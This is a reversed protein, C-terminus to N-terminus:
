ATESRESDVSPSLYKRAKYVYPRLRDGIKMREMFLYLKRRPDTHSYERGLFLTRFRTEADWQRVLTRVDTESLIQDIDAKVDRDSIVKEHSGISGERIFEESGISAWYTRMATISTEEKLEALNFDGLDLPALMATVTEAYKTVLDEYGVHVVRPDDLSHWNLYQIRNRLLVKRGRIKYYSKFADFKYGAFNQAHHFDSVLTERPDRWIQFFLAHKADLVCEIQEMFVLHSKVIHYEDNRDGFQLAFKRMEEQVFFRFAPDIAGHWSPRIKKQKFAAQIIKTQFNSGM